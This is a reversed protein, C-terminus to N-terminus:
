SPAFVVLVSARVQDRLYAKVARSAGCHFDAASLCAHRSEVPDMLGSGASVLLRLDLPCGYKEVV